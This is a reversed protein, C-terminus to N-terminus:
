YVRVGFNLQADPRFRRDAEVWLVGRPTCPWALETPFSGLGADSLAKTWRRNRVRGRINLAEVGVTGASKAM